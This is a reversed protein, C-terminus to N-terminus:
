RIFINMGHTDASGTKFLKFVKSINDMFKITEPKEKFEKRLPKYSQYYAEFFKAKEKCGKKFNSFLSELFDCRKEENKVNKLTDIPHAIGILVKKQGKLGNYLTEFTPMYNHKPEIGIKYEELNNKLAQHYDALKGQNLKKELLDKVSEEKIDTYVSIFEPLSKEPSLVRNNGDISTRFEKLMLMFDGSETPVNHKKLEKTIKKDKLIVEEVAFKTDFYSTMANHIGLINKNVANYQHKAEQVSYFNDKGFINKYTENASDVMMKQIGLKKEKTGDIFSKFTKENPDIGYVLVHVNTPKEGVLDTSINNFTTMEAGLVVRLNRYKYPNREIIKIAEQASETTDHDTIGVVFPEAKKLKDNAVDNAYVAAKDLLEKVTLSGDSAVTHMHMNARMDGNNVNKWNEGTSFNAEDKQFDSMIKKIEQPGVISRIKHQDKPNLGANILLQERYKIDAPFQQTEKKLKDMSYIHVMAAGYNENFFADSGKFSPTQTVTRKKTSHIQQINNNIQQTVISIKM